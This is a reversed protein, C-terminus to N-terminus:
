TAARECICGWAISLISLELSPLQPSETSQQHLMLCNPLDKGSLGQWSDGDPRMGGLSKHWSLCSTTSMSGRVTLVTLPAPVPQTGSRPLSGITLLSVNSSMKASTSTSIGVVRCLHTQNALTAVEVGMRLGASCKSSFVWCEPADWTGESLWPRYLCGSNCLSKYSSPKLWLRWAAVM